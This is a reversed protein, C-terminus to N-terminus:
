ESSAEGASTFGSCRGRDSAGLAQTPIMKIQPLLDLTENLLVENIALSM